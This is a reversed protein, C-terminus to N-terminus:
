LSDRQAELYDAYSELKGIVSDTDDRLANAIDYLFSVEDSPQIIQLTKFALSLHSAWHTLARVIYDRVHRNEILKDGIRGKWRWFAAWEGQAERIRGVAPLKEQVFCGHTYKVGILGRLRGVLLFKLFELRPLDPGRLACAIDYGERTTVDLKGDLIAM